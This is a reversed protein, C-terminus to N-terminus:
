VSSKGARRGPWRAVVHEVIKELEGRTAGAKAQVSMGQLVAMVYGALTAAEETEPLDGEARARELRARLAEQGEMRRRVLEGRISEGEESCALAGTVGLCGAHSPCQTHLRVAGRLMGEVVAGSSEAQLAERLFGLYREEYLDLARRFLAEKNGFAAYLGPRAVGTAQTLDEFSTGEYGKQWFVLLAAELAQEPDFQRHRGM